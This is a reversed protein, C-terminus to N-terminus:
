AVGMFWCHSAARLQMVFLDSDGRPDEPRWYERHLSGTPTRLVPDFGRADIGQQHLATVFKGQGCGINCVTLLERDFRSLVRPLNDLTPLCGGGTAQCSTTIYNDDFRILAPMYPPYHM